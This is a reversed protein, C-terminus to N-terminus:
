KLTNKCKGCSKTKGILVNTYQTIIENGCDCKCRYLAKKNKERIIEIVVLKGFRKNLGLTCKSNEKIISKGIVKAFKHNKKYKLAEDLSLGYNKMRRRLVYKTIKNDKILQEQELTYTHEKEYVYKEINDINEQTYYQWYRDYVINAKGVCCMKIRTSLREIRKANKEGKLIDKGAQYMSEYIKIEHTNKDISMVSVKKAMNKNNRYAHDNNEQITCWELNEVNNNKKNSDKHNIYEKGEIKPIYTEGVLRHVFYRKEGDGINIKIIFYGQHEQYKLEKKTTRNRIVGKESVEYNSKRIQKYM